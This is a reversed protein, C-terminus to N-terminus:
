LRTNNYGLLIINGNVTLL